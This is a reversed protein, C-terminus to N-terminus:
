KMKELQSQYARAFERTFLEHFDNEAQESIEAYTQEFVEWYQTKKSKLLGGSRPNEALKAALVEPDFQSLLGKLAAQMGSVMAVEHARIDRLAEEAARDPDMYGEAPPSAIREVADDETISFKLPNNGTRRIVTQSMRFESKIATRTMLIERIGTVLIRMTRGLRAMTVEPPEGIEPFRKAGMADLFTRILDTAETPAAVQPAPAATAKPQPEPEPPAADLPVELPDEPIPAPAPRAADFPGRSPPEAEHDDDGLGLDWDDPILGVPPPPAPAPPSPPPRFSQGAFHAESSRTVVPDPARERPLEPLGGLLDDDADDPILPGGTAGGEVEPGGLLSDLLAGDPYSVPSAGPVQGWSRAGPAPAGTWGTTEEAATGEAIEVILEYPGISLIDGNEVPHLDPGLPEKGYNLFTGNSSIDIAVFSDGRMEIVCHRKSIIRDPDPLTLDNEPGRGITMNQGRMRVPGANGPVTGTSQFRLTLPM